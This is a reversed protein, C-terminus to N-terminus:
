RASERRLIARLGRRYDPYALVVGLESKIRDNRVRKNDDYFSRAMEGLNAEAFPVLPPPEIGLLSAAYALVESPAAPDDDCLNYVAGPNPQAMSARLVNAIDDVLKSADQWKMLANINGRMTRRRGLFVRAFEQKTVQDLNALQQEFLTGAAVDKALSEAQQAAEDREKSYLHQAHAGVTGTLVVVVVFLPMGIKMRRNKETVPTPPM